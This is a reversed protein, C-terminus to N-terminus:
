ACNAERYHAMVARDLRMTPLTWPKIHGPFFMVRCHAWHRRTSPRYAFVGHEYGWTAENPGLCHTIWAQDSGVFQQGALAAGEITLHEYVQPRAGATILMMSGNYPRGRSTGRFIRFDNEVDFLPDLPGAIVCDLDMCVFRDGFIRAADPGFMVLRRLCQPRRQPWTPIRWEEFERPPSIIDISPIIGEPTDTVCALRHPMQLNRRVMDAWINVHQATYQTRGGPQKWYWTLVTLM